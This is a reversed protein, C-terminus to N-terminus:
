HPKENGLLTASLCMFFFCSAGGPVSQGDGGCGAIKEDVIGVWHIICVFVMFFGALVGLSCVTRRWWMCDNKGRRDRGCGAMKKRGCWFKTNKKDGLLTASLVVFFFLLGAM